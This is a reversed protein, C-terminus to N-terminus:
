ATFLYVDEDGIATNCELCAAVVNSAITLGGKSRPMLHEATCRLPHDGIETRSELKMEKSCWWCLKDQRYFALERLVILLEKETGRIKSKGHSQGKGKGM